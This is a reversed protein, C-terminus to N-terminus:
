KVVDRPSRFIGSKSHRLFAKTHVATWLRLVVHLLFSPLSWHMGLTEAALAANDGEGREGATEGGEIYRGSFGCIDEMGGSGEGPKLLTESIIRNPNGPSSLILDQLYSFREYVYEVDNMSIIIM